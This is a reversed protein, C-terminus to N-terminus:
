WAVVEEDARVRLGYRDQAIAIWGDLEGGEPLARIRPPLDAGDWGSSGTSPDGGATLSFAGAFPSAPHAAVGVTPRTPAPSLDPSAAAFALLEIVLVPRPLRQPIGLAASLAVTAVESIWRERVAGPPFGARMADSALAAPLALDLAQELRRRADDPRIAAAAAAHAIVARRTDIRAAEHPLGRDAAQERARVLHGEAEDFRHARAAIEGLLVLTEVQAARDGQAETERLAEEALAQAAALQGRAVLTAARGYRTHAARRPLGGRAYGTEARAFLEEAAEVDGQDILLRALGEDASAASARDTAQLGRALQAHQRAGASDGTRQAVASLGAVAHAALRPDHALAADLARRFADEAAALRDLALLANARTTILSITLLPPSDADLASEAADLDALGDDHAGVLAHTQARGILCAARADASRRADGLDREARLFLAVADGAFRLSADLDGRAEAIAALNTTARARIDLGVADVDGAVASLIRITEQEAAAPGGGRLAQAMEDFLPEVHRWRDPLGGPGRLGVLAEADGSM